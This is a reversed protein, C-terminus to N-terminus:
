PNSAYADSVTNQVDTGQRCQTRVPDSSEERGTDFRRKLVVVKTTMCDGSAIRQEM